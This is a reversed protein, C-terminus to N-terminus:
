LWVHCHSTFSMIRFNDWTKLHHWLCILIEQIDQVFKNFYRCCVQSFYFPHFKLCQDSYVNMLSINEIFEHTWMQLVNKMLRNQSLLPFVYATPRTSLALSLLLLLLSLSSICYYYHHYRQFIPLNQKVTIRHWTEFVCNHTTKRM